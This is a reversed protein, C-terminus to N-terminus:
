ACPLFLSPEAAAEEEKKTKNRQKDPQSRTKDNINIVGVLCLSM